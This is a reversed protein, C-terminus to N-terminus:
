SSIFYSLAKLSEVSTSGHFDNTVRALATKITYHSPLQLTFPLQYWGQCLIKSQSLAAVLVIVLVLYVIHLVNYFIYQMFHVFCHSSVSSDAVYTNYDKLSPVM